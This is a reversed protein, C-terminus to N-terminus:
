SWKGREEIWVASGVLCKKSLKELYARDPSGIFPQFVLIEILQKKTMKNYYERMM